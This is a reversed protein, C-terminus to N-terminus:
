KGLGTSKDQNRVNMWRSVDRNFQFTERRARNWQRQEHRRASRAKETLGRMVHEAVALESAANRLAVRYSERAHYHDRIPSHPFSLPQQDHKAEEHLKRYAEGWALILNAVAFLGCGAVVIGQWLMSTQLSMPLRHILGGSAFAVEGMVLLLTLFIPADGYGLRRWLSIPQYDDQKLRKMEERRFITVFLEIGKQEAFTLCLSAILALSVLLVEDGQIDLIEIQILELLSLFVLLALGIFSLNQPSRWGSICLFIADMPNRTVSGREAKIAQLNARARVLHEYSAIKAVDIDYLKERARKAEFTSNLDGHYLEYFKHPYKEKLLSAIEQTHPDDLLSQQESFTHFGLPASPLDRGITPLLGTVRDQIAWISRRFVNM